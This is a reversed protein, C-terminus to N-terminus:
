ENSPHEDATENNRSNKLLVSCIEVRGEVRYLSWEHDSAKYPKVACGDLRKSDLALAKILTINSDILLKSEFGRSSSPNLM